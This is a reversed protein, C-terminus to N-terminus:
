PLSKMDPNLDFSHWACLSLNRRNFVVDTSSSPLAPCCSHHTRAHPAMSTSVAQLQQPLTPLLLATPASSKDLESSSRTCGKHQAPPLLQEWHTLLPCCSNSAESLHLQLGGCLSTAAASPLSPTFWQLSTTQSSATIKLLQNRQVPNFERWSLM